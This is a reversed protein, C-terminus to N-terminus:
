PQEEQNTAPETATGAAPVAAATFHQAVGRVDQSREAACVLLAEPTDIVIM